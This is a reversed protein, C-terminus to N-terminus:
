SRKSSTEAFGKEIKENKDLSVGYDDGGFLYEVSDILEPKGNRAAMRLRVTPMRLYKKIFSNAFEELVPLISEDVGYKSSLKNFLEIIEERKIREASTYMISIARNARVEKLMNKLNKLEDDIIKEAFPIREKRNKLNRESISRLDDITFLHIGPIEDASEEVDRPLAIDIILLSNGRRKMIREVLDKKIVFHPASTASIVVDSIEMYEELQDFKVAMGGIQRALEEAREFTRNAILVTCAKKNAISKAVLSGMEGAGILLVKKDKLDGLIDEALEVAASGISISGKNIGTFLRVKRGTQIAKSFIIDLFEGVGGLGKSLQYYERLQGLIQDEGVMLSELGSSVRLVHLLCEENKFYEIHEEGVEFFSALNQLTKITEYGVVYIEVRNCTLLVACESINPHSLLSEIIKRMDTQWAKEIIEVPAKKHSIVM